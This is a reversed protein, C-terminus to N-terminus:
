WLAALVCFSSFLILGPLENLIYTFEEHGSPSALVFFFLGKWSQSMFFFVGRVACDLTHSNIANM